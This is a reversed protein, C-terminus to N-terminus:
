IVLPYIKNTQEFFSCDYDNRLGKNEHAPRPNLHHLHHRLVWSMSAAGRTFPARSHKRLLGLIQVGVYGVHQYLGLHQFQISSDDQIVISVYVYIYICIICVRKPLNISTSKIWKKTLYSSSFRSERTKKCGWRYPSLWGLIASIIRLRSKGMTEAASDLHRRWLTKLLAGASRWQASDRGSRNVRGSCDVTVTRHRTPPKSCKKEM